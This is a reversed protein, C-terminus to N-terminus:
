DLENKNRKKTLECFLLIAFGFSMVTVAAVPIVILSHTQRLIPEKTYKVKFIFAVDFIGASDKIAVGLSVMLVVPYEFKQESVISGVRLISTVKYLVITALVAIGLPAVILNLM